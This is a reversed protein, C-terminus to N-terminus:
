AHGGYQRRMAAKAADAEDQKRRDVDAVAEMAEAHAPWWLGAGARIGGIFHAAREGHIEDALHAKAEALDPRRWWACSWGLPSTWVVDPWLLSHSRVRALEALRHAAPEAAIAVEARAQEGARLLGIADVTEDAAAILTSIHEAAADALTAEIDDHAGRVAAVARAGLVDRALEWARDLDALHGAETILRDREAPNGDAWARGAAILRDRADGTPREAQHAALRDRADALPGPLTLGAADFLEILGRFRDADTIEWASM